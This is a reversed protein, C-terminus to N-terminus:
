WDKEVPESLNKQEQKSETRKKERERAAQLKQEAQSKSMQQDQQDQNEGQDQQPPQLAQLAAALAEIAGQQAELAPDLDHSMGGTENQTNQMSELIDDMYSEALAVEAYANQLREAQDPNSQAASDAQQQLAEGIAQTKTRMEDQEPYLLGLEEKMREYEMEATATTRDRMTSQNELLAKLHEVISFFLIRLESMSQLAAQGPPIGDNETDIATKMDDLSNQVISRLRE